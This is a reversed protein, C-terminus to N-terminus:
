AIFFGCATPVDVEVAGHAQEPLAFFIWARFSAVLAAAVIFLAVVGAAKAALNSIPRLHQPDRLSTLTPKFAGARTEVSM